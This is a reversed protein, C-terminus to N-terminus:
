QKQLLDVVRAWEHEKLQNCLQLPTQKEADTVNHQAGADLLLQVIEARGCGAAFHLVSSGNETKANPDAGAALLLTVAAVHGYWSSYHLATWGDEDRASLQATRTSAPMADIQQTLGAVDGLQAACHYPFLEAWTKKAPVSAPKPASLRAGATPPPPPPAAM